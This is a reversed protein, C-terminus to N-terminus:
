FASDSCVGRGPHKLLDLGIGPHSAVALTCGAARLATLITPVQPVCLSLGPPNLRHTAQFCCEPCYGSQQMPLGNVQSINRPRYDYSVASKPPPFTMPQVGGPARTTSIPPFKATGQQFNQITKFGRPKFQLFKRSSICYRNGCVPYIEVIHAGDGLVLSRLVVVVRPARSPPPLGNRRGSIRKLPFSSPYVEGRRRDPGLPFSM